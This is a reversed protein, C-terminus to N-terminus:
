MTLLNLAADVSDRSFCVGEQNAAFYIIDTASREYPTQFVIKIVGSDQFEGEKEAYQLKFDHYVSVCNTQSKDYPYKTFIFDYISKFEDKIVNGEPSIINFGPASIEILANGSSQTSDVAFGVDLSIEKEISFYKETKIRVNFYEYDYSEFVEPWTDIHTGKDNYDMDDTDQSTCANVFFCTLVLFFLLLKKM